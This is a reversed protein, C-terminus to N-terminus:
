LYRVLERKLGKKVPLQWLLKCWNHNGEILEPGKNSIAVDWGVSRNEPIQLAARMVLDLTEKWFPVRFGQIPAKSVPHEMVDDKTIDSYVAPGEVMGDVLNIPAAINGAALNDVPSNVSIRLRAALFIVKDNVIQTIVRVTNVGSPSLFMLAPHQVIYEEVLDFGSRQMRSILSEYTFDACNFIRVDEGCQGGSKKLVLRGSPSSLIKKGLIRDKKLTAIGAYARFVFNSFKNLFEIKNSLSGRSAKPNMILQYEYIFGTGVYEEREQPTLGFFKFYFYELISINYRFSSYIIDCCLLFSSIRKKKRTFSLFKLFKKWDLGKL